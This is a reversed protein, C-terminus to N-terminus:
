KLGSLSCWVMLLEALMNVFTIIQLVKWIQTVTSLYKFGLITKNNKKWKRLITKKVFSLCIKLVMQYLYSIMSFIIKLICPDLNRTKYYYFPKFKCKTVALIFQNDNADIHNHKTNHNHYMKPEKEVWRNHFTLIQILIPLFYNLWKILTWM